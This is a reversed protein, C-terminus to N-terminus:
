CGGNEIWEVVANWEYFIKGKVKFFPLGNESKRARWASTRSWGLREQLTRENIFEKRQKQHYDQTMTTDLDERLTNNGPAYQPTSAM